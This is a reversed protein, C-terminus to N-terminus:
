QQFNLRQNISFEGAQNPYVITELLPTLDHEGLKGTASIDVGSKDMLGKIDASLNKDQSKINVLTKSEKCALNLVLNNISTQIPTSLSLTDISVQGSASKCELNFSAKYNLEGKFEGDLSAMPIAVFDLSGPKLEVKFGGFGLGASLRWESKAPIVLNLKMLFLNLSWSVDSFNIGNINISRIKGKGLSGEIGILNVQPPLNSYIQEKFLSIPAYYITVLVFSMLFIYIYFVKRLIKM